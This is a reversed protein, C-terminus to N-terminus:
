WAGDEEITFVKIKKNPSSFLFARRMREIVRQPISAADAITEFLVTTLKSKKV